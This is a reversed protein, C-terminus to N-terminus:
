ERYLQIESVVTDNYKDGKEIDDITLRFYTTECVPVVEVGYIGQQEGPLEPVAYSHGNMEITIFDPRNNDKFGKENNAANGSIWKGVQFTIYKVKEPGAFRAEVWEGIGGNEKRVQWSTDVNGDFANAAAFKSSLESSSIVEVPQIRNTETLNEASDLAAVIYTATGNSGESTGSADTGTEGSEANAAVTQDVTESVENTEANGGNSATNQLTNSGTEKGETGKHATEGATEVTEVSEEKSFLKDSTSKIWDQVETLAPLNPRPLESVYPIKSLTDTYYLALYTAALLLVVLLFRKFFSKKKPPAEPPQADQASNTDASEPATSDSSSGPQNTDVVHETENVAGGFAAAAPEEKLQEEPEGEPVEVKHLIGIYPDWTRDRFVYPNNYDKSYGTILYGCKRCYEEDGLTETFCRPCRMHLERENM